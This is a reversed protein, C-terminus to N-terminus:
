DSTATRAKFIRLKEDDNLSERVLLENPRVSGDLWFARHRVSYLYHDDKFDIAWYDVLRRWLRFTLESFASRHGRIFGLVRSADTHSLFTRDSTPAHRILAELAVAGLAADPTLWVEESRARSQDYIRAAEPLLEGKEISVGPVNLVHCNSFPQFETAGHVTGGHGWVSVTPKRESIIWPIWLFFGVGGKGVEVPVRYQGDTSPEVVRIKWVGPGPDDIKVTTESAYWALVLADQPAGWSDRPLRFPSVAPTLSPTPILACGTSAGLACAMPLAALVSFTRRLTSGKLRCSLLAPPHCARTNRQEQATTKPM